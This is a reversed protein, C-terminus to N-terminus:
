GLVKTLTWLTGGAVLGAVIGGIAKETIDKLNLHGRWRM